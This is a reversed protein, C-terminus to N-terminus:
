EDYAVSINHVNIEDRFARAYVLKGSGDVEHEYKILLNKPVVPSNSYTSTVTEPVHRSYYFALGDFGFFLVSFAPTEIRKILPNKINTYQIQVDELLLGQGNKITKHTLDGSANFTLDVYQVESTAFEVKLKVPDTGAYELFSTTSYYRSTGNSDAYAVIKKLLDNEYEYSVNWRGSLSDLKGSDNYYRLESYGVLCSADGGMHTCWDVKIVKEEEYYFNLTDQVSLGDLTVKRAKDGKGIVEFGFNAYGFDEPTDEDLVRLVQPNIATGENETIAFEIPLPDIVFHAMNSGERPTAYITKDSADLVLFQILQYNGSQLELNESVYGQGFTFLSLKINEQENGHSDKISVLVFAPKDIEGARGNDAQESSVSFNAKGKNPSFSEENRCSYSFVMLACFPLLYNKLKKM